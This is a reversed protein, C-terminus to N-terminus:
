RIPWPRSFALCNRLSFGSMALLISAATRCFAPNIASAIRAPSPSSLSSSPSAASAQFSSPSGSPTTAVSGDPAPKRSSPKAKELSSGACSRFFANGAVGVGALWVNVSTVATASGIASGFAALGLFAPAAFPLALSALLLFGFAAAALAPARIAFPEFRLPFSPWAAQSNTLRPPPARTIRQVMRTVRIM